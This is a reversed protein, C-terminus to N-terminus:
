MCCAPRVLNCLTCLGRNTFACSFISAMFIHGRGAARPWKDRLREKKWEVSKVGYEPLTGLAFDESLVVWLIDLTSGTFPHLSKIEAEIGGLGRGHGGGFHFVHTTRTGDGGVEREFGSEKERRAPNGDGVRVREKQSTAAHGLDM